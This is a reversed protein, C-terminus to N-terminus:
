LLLLKSILIYIYNKSLAGLAEDFSPQVNGKDYENTSTVRLGLTFMM